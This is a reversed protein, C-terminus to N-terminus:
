RAEDGRASRCVAKDIVDIHLPDVPPMDFFCLISPAQGYARPLFRCVVQERVPAPRLTKEETLLPNVFSTCLTPQSVAEVKGERSRISVYTVNQVPCM